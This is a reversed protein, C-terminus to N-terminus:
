ARWPRATRRSRSAPSSAGAGRRVAHEDDVAPLLRVRGLEGAGAAALALPRDDDGVRRARRGLHDERLLRRLRAGVATTASLQKRWISSAPTSSPRRPVRLAGPRQDVEHERLAELGRHGLAHEHQGHAVPVGSGAANRLYATTAPRARELQGRVLDALLRSRQISSHVCTTRRQSARACSAVIATGAANRASKKANGSAAIRSRPSVDARRARAAGRARRSSSHNVVQCAAADVASVSAAPSGSAHAIPRNRNRPRTARGRARARATRAASPRRRM